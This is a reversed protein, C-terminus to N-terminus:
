DDKLCRVSNGRYKENQYIYLDPGDNEMLRYWAGDNDQTSSWWAGYNGIHGFYAGARAGGPLLSLEYENLGIGTGPFENWRPHETTNCEGGSPSNVQRCSRIKYAAGINIILAYWEDKSPVHWGTPCLGHPDDVAYWNYLAGYKDKWAIENEYWVYAGTTLDKWDNGDEVNPIPTGDNYTTTKLNEKIWCQGEILVTNYINGDYDTVTPIGPCTTSQDEYVKVTVTAIDTNGDEDKVELDVEWDGAGVDWFQHEYVKSFSYETTSFADSLWRVQLKDFPTELDYSDLASFTFTTSTNGEEPIVKAVAEPPDGVAETVTIGQILKCSGSSLEITYIGPELFTYTFSNSEPFPIDLIINQQNRITWLHGSLDCDIGIRIVEFTFETNISGTSPIINFLIEKDEEDDEPCLFSTSFLFLSALLLFSLYKATKM